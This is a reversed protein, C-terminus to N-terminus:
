VFKTEIKYGFKYSSKILEKTTKQRIRKVLSTIASLSYDDLNYIFTHINEYSVDQNLKDILSKMFTSEYRSLKIVEDQCYLLNTQKNWSYGNNLEVKDIKKNKIGDLKLQIKIRSLLEKTSFPKVIYDIGGLDLAIDISNEDTKTTLFIVPINRTNKNLKLRKCVEYGDMLPMIIDLLILDITEKEVINLADKGSVCSIVDYDSLSEELIELNSVTDDVILITKNNM